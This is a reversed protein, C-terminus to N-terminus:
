GNDFLVVNSKPKAAAFVHLYLNKVFLLDDMKGKWKHYNTDNLYVMTSVKAEM